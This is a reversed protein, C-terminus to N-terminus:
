DQRQMRFIGAVTLNASTSLSFILYLLTQTGSSRVPGASDSQVKLRACKEATLLQARDYDCERQIVLILGWPILPAM